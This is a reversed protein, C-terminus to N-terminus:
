KTTKKGKADVMCQCAPCQMGGLPVGRRKREFLSMFKPLPKSCDPCAKAPKLYAIVGGVVAGGVAGILAAELYAM